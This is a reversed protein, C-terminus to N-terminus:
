KAALLQKSKTQMEAFVDDNRQGAFYAEFLPQMTSQIAAGNGYVTADYLEHNKQYQTFVSLDIGQAAMSQASANMSETISPFFTGTKGAVSQCAPSEMYSVWKWALAPNKTGSWINNGNSNSLVARTGSPGLVTPAIGVKVKPLKEYTSAMWSGDEVMAVKGSGVLDVSSITSQENATIYEGFPPMFGRDSLSRLYDMTKVFRPDDYNFVTPWDSRDGMKWGLTSVFSSWTFQGIFDGSNLPGIGYTAVNKKDFGPQDGRVGNKDVTLHAVMKDFTGGNDPNWNLNAVDAPTYGAKTVADSGYYLASASWDMPLGYQKGDTFKWASAGVSYTKALDLHSSAIDSDLPMLQGQGAYAQFYQVSNQFADPANGAVFAATLKTFYDVVDYQQIKVTTGPNQKEFATACGQYAQAQKDDWTWWTVTNSGSSGSSGACGTAVLAAVALTAVGALLRTRM